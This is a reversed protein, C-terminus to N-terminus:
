KKLYVPMSFNLFHIPHFVVQGLTNFEVAPFPLKIINLAQLVVKAFRNHTNVKTLDADISIFFKRYRKIDSRDIWNGDKDKWKNEFGGYMNGAGYGIAINLWKAHQQTKFFAATNVCLWTNINNYDKIIKEGLSTGFLENARQQLEGRPYEQLHLSYKLQIRQENWVAFQVTALAAGALNAAVDSGSAGWKVSFGDLVEIFSIFSFAMAGSTLAAPIKKMGSWRLAHFTYVSIFYPSFVHGCKDVQNWEKADDFFRFKGREYQSYWLRDLGVMAVSFLGTSAGIVGAVRGRNLTASPALWSKGATKKVSDTLGPILAPQVLPATLSDQQEGFNAALSTEPQTAACLPTLCWGASLILNKLLLTFSRYIAIQKCCVIQSYVVFAHLGLFEDIPFNTPQAKVFSHQL